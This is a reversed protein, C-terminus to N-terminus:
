ERTFGSRCPYTAVTGIPPHPPPQPPSHSPPNAPLDPRNAPSGAGVLTRLSVM